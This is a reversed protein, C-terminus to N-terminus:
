GKIFPTGGTSFHSAWNLGRLLYNIVSLGFLALFLLFSLRLVQAKIEEWETTAALAVLGILVLALLGGFLLTDRWRRAARPLSPGTNANSLTMAQSSAVCYPSIIYSIPALIHVLSKFFLLHLRKFHLYFSPEPM